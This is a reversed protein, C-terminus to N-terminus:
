PTVLPAEPWVARFTEDGLRLRRLAWAVHAEDYDPHREHIGAAAVALMDESMAVALSVRVSPSMSRYIRLQLEHAERSTDASRV